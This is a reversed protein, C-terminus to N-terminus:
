QSIIGGGLVEKGKYFVASQGPTVARQAEKFKVLYVRNRTSEHKAKDAKARRSLGYSEASVPEKEHVKAHIVGEVANHRYRIRVKLKLPLNPEEGSIWNVDSVILEKSYLMPDDRDNSVVLLNKKIDKKIVYYPGTGGIGVARRQGITYLPLGGHEGVKENELNVIDGKKMKLYKKLFENHDEKRSWDANSDAVLGREWLFCIDQSEKDVVPLKWKKAMKKIQKKTYDALPFEVNELIEQTLNYLFYSQDKEKDKPICLRFKCNEAIDDTVTQYKREAPTGREERLAPSWRTQRMAPTGELEARWYPPCAPLGKLLSRRSLFQKKTKKNEQKISSYHGTALTCFGMEMVKRYLLGFKIKKNCKVCPNPTRGNKYEDLFYDIIEKKFERVANITYFPIELYEALMRAKNEGADNRFLKLYVATIDYGQQKLLMGAVASDVGGSLAIAIKKKKRVKM